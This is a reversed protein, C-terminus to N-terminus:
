VCGGICSFRPRGTLTTLEWWRSVITPEWPGAGGQSFTSPPNIVYVIICTTLCATIHAATTTPSMSYRLVLQDPKQCSFPFPPYPSSAHTGTGALTCRPSASMAGPKCKCFVYMNPLQPQMSSPVDDVQHIVGGRYLQGRSDQRLAGQMAHLSGFRQQSETRSGTPGHAAHRRVRCFDSDHETSLASLLTSPHGSHLRNRYDSLGLGM